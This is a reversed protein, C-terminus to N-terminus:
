RGKAVWFRVTAFGGLIPREATERMESFASQRSIGIKLYFGVALKRGM